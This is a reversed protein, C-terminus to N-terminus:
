KIVEEDEPVFTMKNIAISEMLNGKSGRKSSAMSANKSGLAGSKRPNKIKGDAPAISDDVKPILSQALHQPLNPNKFLELEKM